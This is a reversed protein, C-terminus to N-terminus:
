NAAVDTDVDEAVEVALAVIVGRGLAVAVIAARGAVRGAEPETSFVIMNIADPIM